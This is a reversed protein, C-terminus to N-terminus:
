TGSPKAALAQLVGAFREPRYRDADKLEAYLKALVGALRTKEDAALDGAQELVSKISSVAMAAQEAAGYDSYEGSAAQAAIFGLMTKMDASSFAHQTVTTHLGGALERLRAAAAQVAAQGQLSAQHLERIGQRFREGADPAVHRAIHYFVILSADNLRVVGPGLGASVQRPHWRRGRLSRHCAYCDYFALEPWPGTGPYKGSALLDLSQEVALLQGVAWVQVGTWVKKRKRYDEDTKYHAPQIDTFTDLEFSLRPHGAGMIRHTAFKDKTGLHCSLCLLARTEPEETPYMGAELNQQRSNKGSAHPGLYRESGGHCAECGVGDSVQFRKGRREEPVNDAHCDLCVKAAHAAELGLNRAMRQSEKNLLVQYAKAHKDKQHWTVFENQMIAANKFPRTAGHCTSGACTVVGLHAEQGYQPLTPATGTELASAPHLVTWGVLLTAILRLFSSNAM